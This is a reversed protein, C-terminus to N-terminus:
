EDGIIQKFKKVYIHKPIFTNPPPNEMEEVVEEIAKIKKDKDSLARKITNYFEYEKKIYKLRKELNNTTPVPLPYTKLKEVIDDIEGDFCNLRHEIMEEVESDKIPFKFHIGNKKVKEFPNLESDLTPKNLLRKPPNHNLYIASLEQYSKEKLKRESYNFTMLYCIMTQRNEEKIEERSNM